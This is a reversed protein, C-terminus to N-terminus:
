LSLFRFDARTTKRRRLLARIQAVTTLGEILELATEAASIIEGPSLGPSVQWMFYKGGVQSSILTTGDATTSEYQGRQVTRLKLRVDEVDTVVRFNEDETAERLFAKVLIWSPAAM